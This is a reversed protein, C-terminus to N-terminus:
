TFVQPGLSQWICITSLVSTASTKLAKFPQSELLCILVRGPTRASGKAALYALSTSLATRLSCSVMHPKRDGPLTVKASARWPSSLQGSCSRGNGLCAAGKQVSMRVRLSWCGLFENYQLRRSAPIQTAKTQLISPATTKGIEPSSGVGM